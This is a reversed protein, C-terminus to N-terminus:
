KELEIKEIIVDQTPHDKDDIRVKEIKEVTEMGEIVQGFVTHKGDLDPKSQATLIFFQSGNTDKGSNAMALSGKVLKHNNPEDRFAYGPGGQGDDGWNDDKSNPDGGQIMFGSIVRHFKLEEYFGEESLKIFNGTALPADENFFSVKIKGLNTKMTAKTYKQSYTLLEKEIPNEEVKEETPAPEQKVEPVPKNPIKNQVSYRNLSQNLQEIDTEEKTKQPKAFEEEDISIPDRIMVKENNGNLDDKPIFFDCGSLFSVIALCFFIQIIKIKRM